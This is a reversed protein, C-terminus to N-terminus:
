MWVVSVFALSLAHCERNLSSLSPLALGFAIALVFPKITSSAKRQSTRVSREGLCIWALCSKGGSRTTSPHICTFRRTSEEMCLLIVKSIERWTSSRLEHGATCQQRLFPHASLREKGNLRGPFVSM